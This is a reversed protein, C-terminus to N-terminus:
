ASCWIEYLNPDNEVGDALVYMQGMKAHMALFPAGLFYDQPWYQIVRIKYWYYKEDTPVNDIMKKIRTKTSQDYVGFRPVFAHNEPDKSVYCMVESM